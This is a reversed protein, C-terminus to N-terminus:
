NEEWIIFLFEDDAPDIMPELRLSKYVGSRDGLTEKVRGVILGSRLEQSGRSVLIEGLVIEVDQAVEEVLLEGNTDNVLKGVSQMNVKSVYVENQGYGLRSVAVRGNSIREVFGVLYDGSVVEDGLSVEEIGLVELLLEQQNVTLLRAPQMLFKAASKAGLQARLEQNERQLQQNRVREEQAELEIKELEEVRILCDRSSGIMFGFFTRSFERRIRDQIKSVGLEFPRKADDILGRSDLWMLGLLLILVGYTSLGWSHNKSKKRM